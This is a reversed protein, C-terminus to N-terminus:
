PMYRLVDVTDEALKRFPLVVRVAVGRPVLSTLVLSFQDQYLERLRSRINSLGIGQRLAEEGSLFLVSNFNTVELQLANGIKRVQVNVEDAGPHKGIGHRIANEVLTQLILHPVACDLTEEEINSNTSLRDGFRVREIGLHWDLIALEKRLSIEQSHIDELFTRLLWGVRLLLDEAVAPDEYLIAAISHLANFLFHPHLQAKLVTLRIQALEGRLQMSRLEEHRADSYFHWVHVLGVLVWYVLLNAAVHTSLTRRLEADFALHDSESWHRLIPVALVAM